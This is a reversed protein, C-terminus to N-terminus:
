APRGLSSPEVTRAAALASTEYLDRRFRERITFVAVFSIAGMGVLYCAVSWGGGTAALLATMIFPAFGGAFVSAIQYGLSAGSYRVDAPFMEAYLAAQPGYMSAHITFAVILTALVVPVSGTDILWFMPFAFLMMLVVGTLFLKRRRWRDSLAGFLPITVIETAGAVLACTLITHTAVWASRAASSPGCGKTRSTDQGGQRALHVAAFGAVGQLGHADAAALPRAATKSRTAQCAPAPLGKIM